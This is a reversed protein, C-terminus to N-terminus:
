IVLYLYKYDNTIKTENCINNNLNIFITHFIFYKYKEKLNFTTELAQMENLKEIITCFRISAVESEVNLNSDICDKLMWDLPLIGRDQKELLSKYFIVEQLKKQTLRKGEMSIVIMQILNYDRELEAEKAMKKLDKYNLTNLYNQLGQNMNIIHKTNITCNNGDYHILDNATLKKIIELTVAHIVKVLKKTSLKLHKSEEAKAKDSLTKSKSFQTEPLITNDWSEEPVNVLSPSENSVVTNINQHPFVQKELHIDFHKFLINLDMKYVLYKNLIYFMLKLM